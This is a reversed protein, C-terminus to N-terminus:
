LQKLEKELKEDRTFEATYISFEQIFEPTRNLTDMFTFLLNWHILPIKKLMLETAFSDFVNYLIVMHNLILRHNVDNGESYITFFKKIIKIRKIDELFENLEFCQSNKYYALAKQELEDESFM